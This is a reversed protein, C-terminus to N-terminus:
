VKELINTNYLDKVESRNLIKHAKGKLAHGIHHMKVNSWRVM